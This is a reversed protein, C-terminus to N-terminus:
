EDSPEELMARMQEIARHLRSKVTGEPWSLASSIEPVSLEAAYRLTLLQQLDRPLRGLAVRVRERDHQAEVINEPTAEARATREAWPLPVFSLLKRRRHSNLRNVAIRLLWPRLPSGLRFSKIARWAHLFADQTVDEALPRDRAILFVTGFVADGYREVIPRFSDRDGDQCRQVLRDDEGAPWALPEQVAAEM